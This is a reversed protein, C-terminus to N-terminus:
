NGTLTFVPGINKNEWQLLGIITNAAVRHDHETDGQLNTDGIMRVVCYEQGFPSCQQIFETRICATSAWTKPKGNSFDGPNVTRFGIMYGNATRARFRMYSSKTYTNTAPDLMRRQFIYTDENMHQLVRMSQRAAEAEPRYSQMALENAWMQEMVQFASIHYFPKEFLFLLVQDHFHHQIKWGFYNPQRRDNLATRRTLSQHIANMHVHTDRIRIWCEETTMPVYYDDDVLDTVSMKEITDRLSTPSSPSSQIFDGFNRELTEQLKQKEHILQKLHFNEEKLRSSASILESYKSHPGAGISSINQTYSTMYPFMTAKPDSSASATKTQERQNLERQYRVELREVTERLKLM